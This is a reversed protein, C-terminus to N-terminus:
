ILFEGNEAAERKISIAALTDGNKRAEALKTAYESTQPPQTGTQVPTAGKVTPKSESVADFLFATGEDAKLKDIQESLGKVTGDEGLEAGELNLLAMVAKTNKAKNESLAKEVANDMRIKAIEADKAKIAEGNAKQMDAIQTKLAENDGSSKKLDELQKDRDSLTSKYTDREKIVEDLRSKPIYGKLEENSAKAVKDAQEESLGLAILEEKKM